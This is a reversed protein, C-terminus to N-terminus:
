QKKKTKKQAIAHAGLVEAETFRGARGDLAFAVEQARTTRALLKRKAADDPAVMWVSAVRGAGGHGCGDACSSTGEARRKQKSSSLAEDVKPAPIRVGDLLQGAEVAERIHVGHNHLESWLQARDRLSCRTGAIGPAPARAASLLTLVFFM